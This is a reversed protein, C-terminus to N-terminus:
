EEVLDEEAVSAMQAAVGTARGQGPPPMRRPEQGAHQSPTGSQSPQQSCNRSSCRSPTDENHTGISRGM